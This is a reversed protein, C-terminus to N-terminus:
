TSTVIGFCFLHSVKILSVSNFHTVLIIEAVCTFLADSTIRRGHGLFLVQWYYCILLSENWRYATVSILSPYSYSLEWLLCWEYLLKSGFFGTFGSTLDPGAQEATHDGRMQQKRTPPPTSPLPHKRSCHLLCAHMVLHSHNSSNPEDSRVDTMSPSGDKRFHLVVLHRATIKSPTWVRSESAESHRRPRSRGGGSTGTM